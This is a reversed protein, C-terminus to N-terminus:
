CVGALFRWDGEATRWFLARTSTPVSDNGNAEYAEDTFPGDSWTGSALPIQEVFPFSGGVAPGTIKGWIPESDLAELLYGSPTEVLRLGGGQGVSLRCRNAADILRNFVTDTIPEGPRVRPLNV